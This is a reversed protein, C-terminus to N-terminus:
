GISKLTLYRERIRSRLNGAHHRFLNGTFIELTKLEYPELEVKGYLVKEMLQCARSYDGLSIDPDLEAVKPDTQATQWGLGADIGKVKLLQFVRKEITVVKDYQSVKNYKHKQYNITIMLIIEMIMIGFTLIIIFLAVVGLVFLGLHEIGKIALDIPGKEPEDMIKGAQSNKNQDYSATKHVQDPSSVMKQLEGTEYYYGPTVDVPMWGIGDFYVEVWAHANESSVRVEGDPSQEFDRSSIYYGEVYRAAIGHSRLAEVAVSAFVASNGRGEESFYYELPDSGEPVEGLSESYAMQGRLVERVHSIASYISDDEDQYDEWFIQNVLANYGATLVTYNDYVFDRYVQEAAVYDAQEDTQPNSVWSETMLLESPRSSSTETFSYESTGFIGSGEYNMDHNEDTRGQSFEQLSTPVYVYKRSADEVSVRMPNDQPIEEGQCLSYYIASQRLPDFGNEELWDLMGSNDGGYASNALNKWQGKQTSYTVGVFAKLYMDKAQDSWVSLEDQSGQGLQGARSIDGEILDSKGYRGDEIAQFFDGRLGAVSELESDDVSAAMGLVLFLILSVAISRRTIYFTKGAVAIIMGLALLLSCSVVSVNGCLLQISIWFAVFVMSGVQSHLTAFSTSLEGILVSMFIVFALLDAYGGRVSFLSIGDDHITNWNYIMVDIWIRAGNLVGVPGAPVVSALLPVIFLIRAWSFRGRLLWVLWGVAVGIVSFVIPYYRYPLYSGYSKMYGLISASCLLLSIIIVWALKKVINNESNQIYTLKEEKM